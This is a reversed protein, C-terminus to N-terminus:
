EFYEALLPHKGSKVPGNCSDPLHQLRRPLSGAPFTPDGLTLSYRVPKPGDPREAEVRRCARSQVERTGAAAEHRCYGFNPRGVAGRKESRRDWCNGGACWTANSCNFATCGPWKVRRGRDACWDCAVYHVCGNSRAFASRWRCWSNYCAVRTTPCLQRVSAPGWADSPCINGKDRLTHRVQRVCRSRGEDDALGFREGDLYWGPAYDGKADGNAGIITAPNVEHALRFSRSHADTCGAGAALFDPNNGASETQQM